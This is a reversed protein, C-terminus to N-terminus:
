DVPVNVIEVEETTPDTEAVIVAVEAFATLAVSTILGAPTPVATTDPTLTLGADTVPPCVAVPVTVRSNGAPSPPAKILRDLLLGTADTGSPMVMGNPCVVPVNVTEVDDTDLGVDTSIM